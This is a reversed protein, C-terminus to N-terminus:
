RTAKEDTTRNGLTRGIAWCVTGRCPVLVTANPDDKPSRAHIHPKGTEAAEL